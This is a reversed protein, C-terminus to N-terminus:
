LIDDGFINVYQTYFPLCAVKGKDLRGGPKYRSRMLSWNTRFNTFSYGAASCLVGVCFLDSVWKCGKDDGALIGGKSNGIANAFFIM